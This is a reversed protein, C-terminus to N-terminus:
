QSIQLIHPEPSSSRPREAKAPCLVFLRKNARPISAYWLKLYKFFDQSQHSYARTKPRGQARANARALAVGRWGRLSCFTLWQAQHLCAQHKVRTPAQAKARASSSRRGKQVPFSAFIQGQSTSFSPMSPCEAGDPDGAIAM